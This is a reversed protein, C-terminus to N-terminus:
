ITRESRTGAAAIAEAIYSSAAAFSSPCLNGNISPLNDNTARAIVCGSSHFPPPSLPVVMVGDIRRVPGKRDDGFGGVPILEYKTGDEENM